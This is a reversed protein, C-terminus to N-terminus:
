NTNVNAFNGITTEYGQKIEDITLGVGEIKIENFNTVNTQAIGSTPEASTTTKPKAIDEIGATFLGTGQKTQPGFIADAVGDAYIKADEMENKFADGFKRVQLMASGFDFLDVEEIGDTFPLRNWARIVVNVAKVVFNAMDEWSEIWKNYLFALSNNIEAIVGRWFGVITGMVRIFGRGLGKLAEGIGGINTVFRKLWFIALVIGTIVAILPNTVFVYKLITGVNAIMTYLGNFGLTLTGVLLLIGGIISGWIVMSKFLEQNKEIWDSVKDIIPILLSAIPELAQGIIFGLFKVNGEMKIFENTAGEVSKTVENFVRSGFKFVQTFVRQIAMGFFMVSLAWGQFRGENAKLRSSLKDTSRTTRNMDKQLQKSFAKVKKAANGSVVKLKIILEKVNM